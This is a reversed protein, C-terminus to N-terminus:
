SVPPQEQEIIAVPQFSEAGVRLAHVARGLAFPRFYQVASGKLAKIGAKLAAPAGTRGLRSLRPNAAGAHRLRFRSGDPRGRQWGGGGAHCPRCRRGLGADAWAPSLPRCCGRGAPLIEAFLRLPHLTDAAAKRCVGPDGRRSPVPQGHRDLEDDPRSGPTSRSLCRRATGRFVAAARRRPRRHRALYARAGAGHRHRAVPM